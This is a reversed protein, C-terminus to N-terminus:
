RVQALFDRFDTLPLTWESVADGEESVTIRPPISAYPDRSEFPRALQRLQLRAEQISVQDASPYLLWWSLVDAVGPDHLSTILCSPRREEVLRTIARRWQLVYDRPSWYGILAIFDEEFEDLTIRGYQGTNGLTSGPEQEDLFTIHFTM